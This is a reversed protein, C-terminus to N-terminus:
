SEPETRRTPLVRNVRGAVGERVRALGDQLMPIMGADLAAQHLLFTRSRALIIESLTSIERVIIQMAKEAEARAASNMTLVSSTDRVQLFLGFAAGLITLSITAAFLVEILTFGNRNTNM